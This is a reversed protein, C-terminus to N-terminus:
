PLARAFTDRAILILLSGLLAIGVFWPYLEEAEVITKRNIETKELEDIAAFVGELARTDQAKFYKGDTLNAIDILTQEDFEQRVVSGRQLPIRAMNHTGVAITYVKIGLTKALEAATQPTLNGSNNSGDTLLVIVKSKARSKDLRRASAAVASGIATGEETIGSRLRLMSEILWDHDMTLPSALYPRGAFAVLGIRDTPRGEIFDRTVKKAATLRTARRGGISFDDADMSRSIDIAVIMEIGSEKVVDYTRALQPRSLAFVALALPIFFWALHWRGPRATVSAGIAKMIHISSFTVSASAGYRGRLLSLAPILLGLLLFWPNALILSSSGM